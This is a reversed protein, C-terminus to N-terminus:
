YYIYVADYKSDYFWRDLQSLNHKLQTIFNDFEEETRNPENLYDEARTVFISYEQCHNGILETKYRFTTLLPLIVALKKEKLHNFYYDVADSLRPLMADLSKIIKEYHEKTKIYNQSHRLQNLKAKIDIIYGDFHKYDEIHNSQQLLQYYEQIRQSIKEYLDEIDVKIDRTGLHYQLIRFEDDVKKYIELYKTKQEFYNNISLTTSLEQKAKNIFEM